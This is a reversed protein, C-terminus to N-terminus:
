TLSCMQKPLAVPEFARVLDDQAEVCKKLSVRAQVILYPRCIRNRFRCMFTILSFMQGIAEKKAFEQSSLMSLVDGVFIENSSRRAVLVSTVANEKRRFYGSWSLFNRRGAPLDHSGSLDRRKSPRRHRICLLGTRGVLEDFSFKGIPVIERM